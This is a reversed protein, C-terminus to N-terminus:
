HYQLCVGRFMNHYCGWKGGAADFAWDVKSRGFWDIDQFDIKILGIM